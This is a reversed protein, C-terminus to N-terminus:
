SRTRNWWRARVAGPAQAQLALISDAYVQMFCRDTTEDARIGVQRPFGALTSFLPGSEQQHDGYNKM